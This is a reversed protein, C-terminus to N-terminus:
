VDASVVTNLVSHIKLCAPKFNIKVLPKYIRKYQELFSHTVIHYSPLKVVAIRHAQAAGIVSIFSSASAPPLVLLELQHCQWQLIKKLFGM